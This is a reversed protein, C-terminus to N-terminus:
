GPNSSVMTSHKGPADLVGMAIQLLSRGEETAPRRRIIHEELGAHSEQIQLATGFHAVPGAGDPFCFNPYSLIDATALIVKLIPCMLNSAIYSLGYYDFEKPFKEKVQKFRNLSTSFDGM